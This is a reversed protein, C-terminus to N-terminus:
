ITSQRVLTVVREMLEETAREFGMKRLVERAVEDPQARVSDKLIEAAAYRIEAPPLMEAKRLGSLESARRRVRAPAGDIPEWFQTDSKLTGARRAAQLGDMAAGQIRVGTRQMGWAKAVRRAVEDEHVPGEYRVIEEVVAQIQAATALHPETVNGAVYYPAELYECPNRIGDGAQQQGRLHRGATEFIQLGAVQRVLRPKGDDNPVSPIDMATETVTDAGANADTVGLVLHLPVEPAEMAQGQKAADLVALLRAEQATRRHFWDTSWIRFMRWGRRELISQRLRDRDRASRSSHYTAGDCEIGILYSHGDRPDVVGLDIFFGQMGVQPHVQYGLSHVYQAVSEEFDSGFPRQTAEPIDLYGKEAMQLFAKLARVGTKGTSANVDQATISSYVVCRERSRSILVNLRREGGERTIPGYNATLKGDKDRGYGVSIFIVDREDGQISELNKVFFPERANAGFFAEIRPDERREKEVYTRIADRQAVSFTGVGLSKGPNRRAFEAVAKAIVQAEPLNSRSGGRDYGGPPSKVLSLGLGMRVAAEDTVPAPPIKLKGEYFYHNSTSILSPHKSRYHWNLMYKGEFASDCLSLISEMGGVSTLPVDDPLDDDESAAADEDSVLREFFNTPPLQKSDGVVVIQKARAVSGLADAPKVQSAEDIVLLDFTLQGPALYQAVSLPSMLFVPKLRQIALGAKDLLKRTALLRRSKNLEGRLVAMDGIQGTPRQQYHLASVETAAVDARVADLRRFEAVLRDLQVGDMAALESDAETLSRWIAEYVALEFSAPLSVATLRGDYVPDRLDAKGLESLLVLGERIPPWDNFTGPNMAWATALARYDELPFSNFEPAEAGFSAIAFVPLEAAQAREGATSLAEAAHASKTALDADALRSISLLADRYSGDSVAQEWDLAARVMPEIAGGDTDRCLAEWWSGLLRACNPALDQLKVRAVQLAMLEDLAAVCRPYSLVDKSRVLGRLRGNALRWRTSFFRWWAGEIDALVARTDIWDASLASPVFAAAVLPELRAIEAAIDCARRLAARSDRWQLILPLVDAPIAPQAARLRLGHLLPRVDDLKCATAIGAPVTADKPGLLAAADTVCAHLAGLTEALAAGLSGLRELDIPSIVGSRHGRWPHQAPIGAHALHEALRAVALCFQGREAYTWQAAVPVGFPPAPTGTDRLRCMAGVIQFASLGSPERALNWRDAHANLTTVRAELTPVIAPDPPPVPSRDVAERLQARVQLKSAKKSHLELCLPALGVSNLRNQVVELAAQKEAVFLVSKGAHVAASILNTITQSKGTGPPGQIVLNRGACVQQIAETQSSDADLVYVLKSAPFQEDLRDSTVFTQGDAPPAEEHPVLLSRLVPHERPDSGEPWNAPDLDRWLLFKSFSFMGLLLEDQLVEFRPEQAIAERVLAFYDSPLWDEGEPLEPLTIRFNEQMWVRLSINAFLDEDRRRLKMTERAGRRELEVPVLLLPAYRATDSDRSEFWKLFGLALYLVNVGQEEQAEQSDHYLGQLRKDLGEVTLRTQLVTDRHRKAVEGEVYEQPPQYIGYEVDSIPTEEVDATRAAAFSYEKGEGWLGAFVEDSLEDVVHVQKGRKGTLHCNVLRNNLSRDILERRASQLQRAVLDRVTAPTSETSDRTEPGTAPSEIDIRM